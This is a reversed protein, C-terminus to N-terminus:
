GPRETLAAALAAPGLTVARAFGAVIRDRLSHRPSLGVFLVPLELAVTLLYGWPLFRWLAAPDPPV